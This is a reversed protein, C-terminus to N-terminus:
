ILNLQSPTFLKVGQDKAHRSDLLVGVYGLEDPWSKGPPQQIYGVTRAHRGTAVICRRGPTYPTLSM